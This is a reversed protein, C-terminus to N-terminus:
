NLPKTLAILEAKQSSTGAPLAQAWTLNQGDVIAAGAKRVGEELFSSSDTYWTAKANTLPQDSLDKRWGHAEALVQQCDHIPPDLDPDPLLTAPNLSAPPAFTVWDSNLLLTQYHTMRANTLWRDRPQRKCIQAKKTSAQYGLEGLETLLHKTGELCLEEDAAALLLDDVYQLLTVQPNSAQFVALDQHLAEDFITPSNKFGQPLRTWTLQGALGTEPDKWKFAFYDQSKVALPLCFFADKLDLVLYWTRDPPLSSVLNYPNPTTSHLNAVRKNVERLDQVPRYDNTGPKRVPLLPTNWASQCKQLIGLQPLHAIHPQIGEHAERSVPYQRDAIPSAQAKLEIHIPPRNKAKGIGATEAWAQPYNELWWDMQGTELGQKKFLQYEDELRLTLVQLPKGQRNLLQPGEPDFHIQAGMKTLLDRGLLPYPCEPIVIFSHSVRSMGLDVTRRTTWPYQRNGTAGQVWLKKNLLPGDTQLLVSHQAGTDVLFQTPKGEVRLTVRPKPLLPKKKSGPVTKSPEGTERIYPSTARKMLLAMLGCLSPPFLRRFPQEGVIRGRRLDRGEEKPTRQRLQRAPQKNPLSM